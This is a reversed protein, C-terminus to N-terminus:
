PATPVRRDLAPHSFFGLQGLRYNLTVVVAGRRAMLSGDYLPVSGSGFILAGGHIWVMVPLRASPSANPSWVNLYLCDESIPGPDGGNDISLKPNQVCANGFKEAKRVSRWPAPSKPSRWRLDGVPPAAYPLGKFIALGDTSVGEVDGQRTRVIPITEPAANRASAVGSRSSTRARTAARAGTEPTRRNGPRVSQAASEGACLITCTMACLAAVIARTDPM